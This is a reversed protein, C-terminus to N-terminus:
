QLTPLAGPDVALVQGLVAHLELLRMRTHAGGFPHALARTLADVHSSDALLGTLKGLLFFMEDGENEFKIQM